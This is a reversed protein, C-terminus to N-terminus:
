VAVQQTFNVAKQEIVPIPVISEVVIGVETKLTVPKEVVREAYVAQQVILPRTQTLTGEYRSLNQEVIKEVELIKPVTRFVQLM